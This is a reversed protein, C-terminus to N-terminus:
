VGGGGDSNSDARRPALPSSGVTFPSGADVGNAEDLSGSAKSVAREVNDSDLGPSDVIKKGHYSGGHLNRSHVSSAPLTNNKGIKRFYARERKRAEYEALYEDMKDKGGKGGEGIEISDRHVRLTNRGGMYGIDLGVVEELSDARLFGFYHLAWFFPTMLAVVWAIVFLVGVLQCALLRGGGYFLGPTPNDYVREMWTPTAFLGAAISGWIGSALHVPVADVADDIRRKVLLKSVGIYMMGGLFGIIIAAWSTVVSCSATVSVLGALCGNM